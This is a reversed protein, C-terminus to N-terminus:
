YGLGKGDWLIRHGSARNDQGHLHRVTRVEIVQGDEDLQPEDGSGAPIGYACPLALTPGEAAQIHAAAFCPMDLTRHSTLTYTGTGAPVGRVFEGTFRVAPQDYTGTGVLLGKAWTGRLCGKATDWYVGEGHKQGALWSGTYVSGDPYRYQGQGEFKDNAFHGVYTGGDPFVM